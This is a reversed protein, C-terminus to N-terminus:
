NIHSDADELDSSPALLLGLEEVQSLDVDSPAGTLPCGGVSTKPFAIVDRITEADFMLAYLRDLGIAFGAHPPPGYRFAELLFAFRREAEAADLGIATFIDRQLEANHIRISGSG